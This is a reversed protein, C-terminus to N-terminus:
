KRLSKSRSTKKPPLDEMQLIQSNKAIIEGEKVLIKTIIGTKEANFRNNMKMAEMIFLCKGESIKQGEKVCIKVLKGPIPTLIKNLDKPQWPVRNKFKEPLYTKYRAGDLNLIDYKTNKNKKANM